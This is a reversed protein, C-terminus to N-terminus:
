PDGGTANSTRRWADSTIGHRAAEARGSTWRGGTLGRCTRSGASSQLFIQHSTTTTGFLPFDQRIGYVPILNQGLEHIRHHQVALLGDGFADDIRCEFGDFGTRLAIRQAHEVIRQVVHLRVDFHTRAADTTRGVLDRDFDAEFAGLCEGDAPQDSRGAVAALVGHRRAQRTFQEVRRVVAAVRHLLALVRVAHRFRVAGERMVAPVRSAPSKGRTRFVMDHPAPATM